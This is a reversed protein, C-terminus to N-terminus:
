QRGTQPPRQERGRALPPGPPRSSFVVNLDWTARAVRPLGLLFAGSGSRSLPPIPPGRPDSMSGFWLDGTESSPPFFIVDTRRFFLASPSGRERREESELAQLLSCRPLPSLLSLASIPGRSRRGFATAGVVRGLPGTGHPSTPPYAPVRNPAYCM